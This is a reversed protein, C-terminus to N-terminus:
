DEESTVLAADIAVHAVHYTDDLVHAPDQYNGIAAPQRTSDVRTNERRNALPM